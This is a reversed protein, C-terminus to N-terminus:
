WYRSAAIPTVLEVDHKGAEALMGAMASSRNRNALQIADGELPNRGAGFRTLPTPVPSFTNTEHSMMAIFIRM